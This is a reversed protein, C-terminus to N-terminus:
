LMRWSLRVLLANNMARAKRIGLGWQKKPKYITKWKVLHVKRQTENSGWICRRTYMDIEKLIAESLMTTQMHFTPLSSIVSIALTM